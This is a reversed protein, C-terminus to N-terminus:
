PKVAKLARDLHQQLKGRKIHFASWDIDPTQEVDEASREYTQLARAAEAIEILAIIAKARERTKRSACAFSGDAIAAARLRTLDIENM